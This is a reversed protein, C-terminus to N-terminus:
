RSKVMKDNGVWTCGTSSTKMRFYVTPEAACLTLLHEPFYTDNPPPLRYKKLEALDRKLREIFHRFQQQRSKYYQIQSAMTEQQFKAAFAVSNLALPISRFWESMPLDM